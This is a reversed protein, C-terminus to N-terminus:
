QGGQFAQMLQRMRATGQPVAVQDAAQMPEAMPQQMGGPGAAIGPMAEPPAVMGEPAPPAETAQRRRMEEDAYLVAAFIDHGEQMYNRM